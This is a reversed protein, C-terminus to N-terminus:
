WNLMKGHSQCTPMRIAGRQCLQPLCVVHARVPEVSDEVRRVREVRGHVLLREAWGEHVLEHGQPGAEEADVGALRSCEARRHM